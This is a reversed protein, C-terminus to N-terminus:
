YGVQCVKGIYKNWKEVHKSCGLPWWWSFGNYGYMMQYIDGQTPTPYGRSILFFCNVRRIILVPNSSIHVSTFYICQFLADLENNVLIIGLHVTLSIYFVEALHWGFRAFFTFFVTSALNKSRMLYLVYIQSDKKIACFIEWRCQGCINYLPKYGCQELFSFLFTVSKNVGRLLTHRDIEYDVKVYTISTWMLLAQECLYHKNSSNKLLNGYQIKSFSSSWRYFSIIYLASYKVEYFREFIKREARLIYTHTWTIRM